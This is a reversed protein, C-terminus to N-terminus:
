IAGSCQEVAEDFPVCAADVSVGMESAEGEFLVVNLFRLRIVGGAQPDGLGRQGISEAAHEAPSPDVVAGM